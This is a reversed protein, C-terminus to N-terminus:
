LFHTDFWKEHRVRGDPNHSLTESAPDALVAFNLHLHVVRHEPEESEFTLIGRREKLALTAISAASVAIAAADGDIFDQHHVIFELTGDCGTCLGVGETFHCFPPIILRFSYAINRISFPRVVTSSTRVLRTM